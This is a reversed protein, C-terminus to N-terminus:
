RGAKPGLWADRFAQQAPTLTGGSSEVAVLEFAPDDKVVIETKGTAGGRRKYTVVLRDGAKKSKLAAQLAGQSFSKGDVDVIVDGQDLGADFAPSGWPVLNAITGSADVATLGTWGAGARRRLTYGARAFLPAYDVADRGEIYKTFFEDAFAADGAVEALRARADAITYPSAVLGAQAGGPKGHV